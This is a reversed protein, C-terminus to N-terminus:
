ARTLVYAFLGAMFVKSLRDAWAVSPNALQEEKTFWVGTAEKFISLLLIILICVFFKEATGVWDLGNDLPKRGTLFYSFKAMLVVFLLSIPLWWYAEAWQQLHSKINAIGTVKVFVIVGIVLGILFFTWSM